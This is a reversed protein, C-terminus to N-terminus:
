VGSPESAEPSLARLAPRGKLAEGPPEPPGSCNPSTEGRAGEAAAGAAEPGASPWDPLTLVPLGKDVPQLRRKPMKLLRGTYELVELLVDNTLELSAM